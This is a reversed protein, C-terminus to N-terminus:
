RASEISQGRRSHGPLAGVLSYLDSIRDDQTALYAQVLISAPQEYGGIIGVTCFTTVSEVEGTARVTCLPTISRVITAITAVAGKAKVKM